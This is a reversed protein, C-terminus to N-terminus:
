PKDRHTVTVSYGMAAVDRAVDEALLVSRHQGGTCGMAVVLRSKGERRYLPLLFSLTERMHRLFQATEPFAHIYDRVPEDLGTMPRMEAIYYPNPLFRVDMVLDADQPMGRKFGFSLINVQLTEENAEGCLRTMTERLERTLMRSTDIVRSSVDRLPQLMERERAISRVIMEKSGFPHARRTESYRRILEEDTADLFLIEYEIGKARMENLASELGLKLGGSFVGGRIDVVAAVREIGSGPAVCLEAMPRLLAPPLNDVCYFGIDELAHLAQTKGAGSLGTLVMFRM